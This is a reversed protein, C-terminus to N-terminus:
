SQNKGRSHICLRLIYKEQLQAPEWLGSAEPRPCRLEMFEGTNAIDALQEERKM